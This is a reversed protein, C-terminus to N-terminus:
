AELALIEEELRSKVLEIPMQMISGPLQEENLLALEEATLTAEEVPETTEPAAQREQSPPNPAAGAELLDDFPILDCIHVSLSRIDPYDFVATDSIEVQFIKSIDAQLAMVQISEIGMAFFGEDLPPQYDAGHGLAAAVKQQLVKAVMEQQESEPADALELMFGSVKGNVAANTAPPNPESSEITTTELAEGAGDEANDIRTLDVGPANSDTIWFRQKAFPYGPLSIRRPKNEAPYLSEWDVKGGNVWREATNQDRNNDSAAPNTQPAYFVGEAPTNALTASFVDLKHSLEALTGAMFAVRCPMAERGTQLTYAIDGIAPAENRSATKNLYDQLSIAYAQLRDPQMASLPVIWPRNASSNAPQPQRYASDTYEEMVLHVNVGSAGLSTIGARRPVVEDRGNKNLVPQKWEELRQQVFFPTPAFAINPNLKDPDDLVSPVLTKHKMQLIVKILQVIGAAAEAHGINSKSSGVACYQSRQTYSRYADTLGEIEIPDGLSTGTGHTEVYSITDPDIGSKDLAARIVETQAVPNPVTYGYTKGDHNVASGKIVAYIKDGDKEAQRLPKLLVAGVAEAPVMGDGGEGFANCRGKRTLMGISCLTLYKAPHQSLNVGGAIAMACDGKRISELALHVANLSSSCATDVSLSPGSFNMFYSVRNAVSCIQTNVPVFNGNAWEEITNLQYENYSVGAFVGVNGRRDGALPDALTERTYGADEVCSWASQLFLREQPTMFRARNPSINFLQADFKDYDDLFGGWKCYIGPYQRYDWRVSPIETVCDKGAKLNEWFADINAAMPFSGSIGIVAIDEVGHEQRQPTVPPIEAPPNVPQRDCIESSAPNQTCSTVSPQFASVEQAHKDLFYAHLERISKHTFFLTPSINDFHQKLQANLQGIVLSDLGYTEFHVDPDLKAADVKLKDAILRTLYDLLADGSSQGNDEPPTAAVAPQAPMRCAEPTTTSAPAGIFAKAPSDAVWFRERGFPYTPLPIRRRKEGPYFKQWDIDIGIVWLNAAKRLAQLRILEELLKGGAQDQLLGALERNASVRGVYADAIRSDDNCFQELKGALADLTSVVALREQMAERGVQLTYALDAPNIKHATGIALNPQQARNIGPYHALLAQRHSRILAAALERINPDTLFCDMGAPIGYKETLREALVPFNAFDFGYDTLRIDPSLENRDVQLIDAAMRRLDDHFDAEGAQTSNATASKSKHLYAALDRAYDKLRERNKASLVFIHETSAGDDTPAGDPFAHAPRFEELVIHANAGGFGFSSVGARRPLPKGNDDTLALWPQNKDVIYFPSDQLDIYPNLTRFHINGPLTQHKLSLVTKLIGAMGAAAELHGANTKVSGIGCSHATAPPKNWQRYLTDFSKKLANIEVPDGLKTGTGHAEIYNVTAPDIGAKSYADILVDAQASTNPTTVSNARGGHNVSTSRIVAYVHDGDALARSLPKLLLAAVGESRVFGDSQQDFASCRGTTSLVGARSLYIFNLPSLIVNVGGAIAMECEGQRISRVARHVAVLSSACATDVPESPGHLDLLYSVRNPIMAPATGTAAYADIVTENRAILDRYGSNTIGVFVGTKSGALESPKYGGDEICKWSAELFLRQQPDMLEAERPSISFFLPDFADVQKLFGGWIVNTKNPETDPDGYYDKWDWREPPIETILNDGNLLHEWFEEPNDSQPMKGDIGIIAIADAEDAQQSRGTPASATATQVAPQIQPPEQRLRTSVPPAVIAEDEKVYYRRMEEGFSEQLHRTLSDIGSYEFFTSPTIPRNLGYQENLEGAFETLSLSDFGYAYLTEEPEFDTAPRKLLRAAMAILDRQIAPGFGVAQPATNTAQRSLGHYQALEAAFGDLLHGALAALTPYEFFVSPTLPRPLGYQENLEGAFETLSLSDFGYSYLTEDLELTEPSKKLLKAAKEVLARRLVTLLALGSGEADEAGAAEPTPYADAVPKNVFHYASNEGLLAQRIKQPYGELLMFSNQAFGLGQVFADVGSGTQLLTMGLTQSLIKETQKGPQMGGHKWLPWNIALTKGSRMGNSRLQERFEAFYDLFANAFAYGPLGLGEIEASISSFLVFFDLPEHQLCRDMHLTGSLKPALVAQLDGAQAERIFKRRIVGASHVVGNVGGFREKAAAVLAACDEAKAVDKPLYIVEAGFAELQRLYAQKDESLDSRGTLILRAQYEKALFQAFILGLGGLGGTILYVGKQKLPLKDISQKAPQFEQLQKVFRQTNGYRIRCHQDPSILEQLLLTALRNASAIGDSIEMVKCFLRNDELRLSNAFGYLAAYQPQPSAPNGRYAYIIRVRGLAKSSQEILTKGLHFLSYFGHTLQPELQEAHEPVFAQQSWYHIVYAPAQDAQILSTILRQYHEAEAPNISYHNNDHRLFTEGPTVLTVNNSSAGDSCLAAFLHADEDFLLLNGQWSATQTSVDLALPEWVSNFYLQEIGPQQNQQGFSLDPQRSSDPTAAAPASELTHRPRAFPYTPLPIRRPTSAQHLDQWDIAAGAVWLAALRNLDRKGFVTARYAADEWDHLLSEKDPAITKPNGTILGDQQGGAAFVSLKDTLEQSDNVVLALREQMPKRGVQLTFAVSELEIARGADAAQKLFRALKDAYHRLREQDKASLVIIQADDAAVQKFPKAVSSPRRDNAYKKMPLGELHQSLLRITPFEFLKIVPLEVQFIQQLRGCAKVLLLSDAGLEFFNDDIGAQEIGLIHLFVDTITKEIATNAQRYPTGPKALLESTLEPLSLRDLKGNPTLPLKELAVFNAPLMYEPLHEALYDRLEGAGPIAETQAQFYAVLRTNGAPDPKASVVSRNINPHRNLVSEIEGPEVRFGRINIQFDDRGMFEVEGNPLYRALDGSRYLRAGSEGTFPNEIYRDATLQPNHLYGRTLGAGGLYLEGCVGVPVPQREKDLIYLSINPNPGGLLPKQDSETCRKTTAGGTLETMGYGIIFNRGKAWRRMVEPACPEGAVLVHKLDPLREPALLAASSAAMCIVEIRNNQLFRTLSDGPLMTERSGTFLAAGSCLTSFIDGVSMVFSFSAFLAVNMGQGLGFQDKARIVANCLNGHEVMVGKPNGTSGSTYIVCALSDAQTHIGPNETGHQSIAEQQRDLDIISGTFEPLIEVSASDTMVFAMRSNELMYSLREAPYGIDLPVYAGGAKIIGLIGIFTNLSRGLFLGVLTESEVGQQILYHALRNSKEDLERYTLGINNAPDGDSFVVAPADPSAQVQHAFWHNISEYEITTKRNNIDRLFTQQQQATLLPLEGVTQRPNDLLGSLLVVFHGTMRAITSKQFLDTKYRCVCLLGGDAQTVDLVLDFLGEYQTIETVRWQECELSPFTPTLAEQWAFLTRFVPSVAQNDTNCLRKTLADITCHKYQEGTKRSSDIRRIFEEATINASYESSLPLYDSFCGILGDCGAKWRSDTVIGTIINTQRSYRHLLIQWAALMINAASVRNTEALQQLRRHIEQGPEFTVSGGDFSLSKSRPFDPPLNLVPTNDGLLSRWYDLSARGQKSDELVKEMSAFDPRPESLKDLMAPELAKHALYLKPLEQLVIQISASDMVLAHAIFVLVHEDPSFTFLRIRCPASQQLDFSAQGAIDMEHQRQQQDLVSLDVQIFDPEDPETIDTRVTGKKERFVLSRLRIHREALSKFASYLANVDLETNIHISFSSHCGSSNPAFRNVFWYMEQLASLDRPNRTIVSINM